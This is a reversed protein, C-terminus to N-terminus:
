QQWLGLAARPCRHWCWRDRGSAICAHVCRVVVAKKPLQRALHETRREHLTVFNHDHYGNATTRPLLLVNDLGALEEVAEAVWQDAPREDLLERSDLLSGGMEEQEDALIVLAGSRGAALAASLGAPGAGIVLVDCHRNFHDYIDPDKEMPSRGLGASKRIYKEYTMWMSAPAMFTKYYFGPPMFQGGLKGIVGM